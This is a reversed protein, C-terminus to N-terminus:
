PQISQSSFGLFLGIKLSLLDVNSCPFVDATNTTPNCTTASHFQDAGVGDDNTWDKLLGCFCANKMTMTKTKSKTMTTTNQLTPTPISRDGFVNHHDKLFRVNRQNNSCDYLEWEEMDLSPLSSLSSLSSSSSSSSSSPAAMVRNKKRQLSVVFVLLLLLSATM